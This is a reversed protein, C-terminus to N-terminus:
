NLGRWQNLLCTNYVKVLKKKWYEGSYALVNNVVHKLNVRSADNVGTLLYLFHERVPHVVVFVVFVDSGAIVFFEAPERVLGSVHRRDNDVVALEAHDRHQLYTM